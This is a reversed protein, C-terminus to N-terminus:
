MKHILEDHFKYISFLREINVESDEKLRRRREAEEARKVESLNSDHVEPPGEEERRLRESEEAQIVSAKSDHEEAVGVPQKVVIVNCEANEVVYRFNRHSGTIDELSFSQSFVLLM